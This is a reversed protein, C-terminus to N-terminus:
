VLPHRSRRHLEGVWLGHCGLHMSLREGDPMEVEYQTQAPLIMEDCARCPQHQGFGVWTKVPVGRPLENATLKDRVLDGLRRGESQRPDAPARSGSHSNGLSVRVAAVLERPWVPKRLAVSAGFAQAIELGPVDSSVAVIRAAPDLRRLRQILELGHLKPIHLDTIVVEPARQVYVEWANAGDGVPVTAYGENQLVEGWFDRLDDDDEVLLVTVM